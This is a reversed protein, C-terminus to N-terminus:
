KRRGKQRREGEAKLMRRVAESRVPLDPEERRWDDILQLLEPDARLTLTPGELKAVLERPGIVDAYAKKIAYVAQDETM